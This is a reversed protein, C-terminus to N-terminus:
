CRPGTRKPLRHTEEETEAHAAPRNRFSPKLLENSSRSFWVDITPGTNFRLRNTKEVDSQLDDIM